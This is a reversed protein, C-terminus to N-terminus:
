SVECPDHVVLIVQQVEGPSSTTVVNVQICITQGGDRYIDNEHEAGSVAATFIVKKDTADTDVFTATFGDPTPVPDVVTVTPTGTIVESDGGIENLLDTFDVRYNHEAEPHMEDTYKEIKM